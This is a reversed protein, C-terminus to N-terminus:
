DQVAHTSILMPVMNGSKRRPGAGNLALASLDLSSNKKGNALGNISRAKVLNSLSSLLSSSKHIGPTKVIVVPVKANKMVTNSVSGWSVGRCGLIAMNYREDSNELKELIAVSASHHYDANVRFQYEIGRDLQEQKVYKHINVMMEKRYEEKNQKQHNEHANPDLVYYITLCDIPQAINDFTFSLAHLGEALDIAVLIHRGKHHTPALKVTDQAILSIASSSPLEPLKDSM